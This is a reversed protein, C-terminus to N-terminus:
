YELESVNIDYIVLLANEIRDMKRRVFYYSEPDKHEQLLRDAEKELKKYEKIVERVKDTM